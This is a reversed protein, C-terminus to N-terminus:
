LSNINERRPLSIVQDIWWFNFNGIRNSGSCTNRRMNYTFKVSNINDVLSKIIDTIDIYTDTTTITNISRSSYICLSYNMGFNKFWTYFYTIIRNSKRGVVFKSITFRYYIFSKPFLITDTGRHYIKFLIENRNDIEICDLNVFGSLFSRDFVPARVKDATPTPDVLM